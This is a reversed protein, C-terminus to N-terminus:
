RDQSTEHVKIWELVRESFGDIHTWKGYGVGNQYSAVNIMYAKEVVPDPVGGNPRGFYTPRTAQEDTIVILRDHPITNARRVADALNTGGNSQSRKIAEIGAIGRRAPVEVLNNSFSFVRVDGPIIAGLTAAADMRTLDSKASLKDSMSGSVDVLVLTTGPLAEVDKMSALLADDIAREFSPAARAAAVFRFPLVREAGGKRAALADIVLKRDCGAQEMNRLNRILAFYGLKGERILREFTERKDAGNSLETEWTDPVSMENAAIRKFLNTQEVTKPKPHAVFMVDRIRVAKQANDFKALSYENFKAFAIALGKKMQNPVPKRGDKWYLALLETMDDPRQLTDALAQAVSKPVGSHHKFYAIFLWLPVHRLNQQSRAELALSVVENPACEAVLQDIRETISVGSEYFSNEWLFCSLVTRRLEDIKSIRKAVVDGHTRPAPKKVKKNVSAM